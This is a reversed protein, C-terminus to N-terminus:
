INKTKIPKNPIEDIHRVSDVKIEFKCSDCDNWLEDIIAKAQCRHIHGKYYILLEDKDNVYIDLSGLWRESEVKSSSVIPQCLLLFTSILILKKM